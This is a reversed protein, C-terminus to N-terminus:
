YKMNDMRGAFGIMRRRSPCALWQLFLGAKHKSILLWIKGQKRGDCGEMPDYDFSAPVM